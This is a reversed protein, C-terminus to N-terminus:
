SKSKNKAILSLKKQYYFSITVSDTNEVKFQLDGDNHHLVWGNLNKTEATFSAGVKVMTEVPDIINGGDMDLYRVTVKATKYNAYKFTIINKTVDSGLVLEQTAKVPHYSDALIAEAQDPYHTRVYEADVDHATEKVSVTSGDVTVTKSERVHIDPNDELVYEVTYSTEKTKQQVFASAEGIKM